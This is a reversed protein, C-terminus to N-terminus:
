NSGLIVNVRRNKAQGSPTENTAIPDSSGHGKVAVFRDAPFSSSSAKQLWNKVANARAQSLNLNNDANGTNDTYGHIEILLDDAVLLGNKLENLQSVADNAFTAQGTDFASM